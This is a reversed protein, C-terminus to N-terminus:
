RRCGSRRRGTGRRLVAAGADTLEALEPESLRGGTVVRLNARLQRVGKGTGGPRGRARGPRVCGAGGARAAHRVARWGAAFGADTSGGAPSGARAAARHSRDRRPRSPPPAAPPAVPPRRRHAAGVTVASGALLVWLAVHLAYPVGLGALGTGVLM